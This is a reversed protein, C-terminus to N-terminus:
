KDMSQDTEAKNSGDGGQKATFASFDVTVANRPEMSEAAPSQGKASGRAQAETREKAKQELHELKIAMGEKQM